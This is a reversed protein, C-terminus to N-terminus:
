GGPASPKSEAQEVMPGAGTLGDPPAPRVHEATSAIRARIVTSDDSGVVIAPTRGSGSGAAPQLSPESLVRAEPRRRDLLWQTTAALAVLVVGAVSSQLAIFTLNSDLALALALSPAVVLSAIHLGLRRARLVVLGVALVMGSCLGVLLARPAFVIPLSGPEGPRSFLYEQAGSSPTTALSDPLRGGQTSGTVWATLRAEIWRPRRKWLYTEWYWENDDIWGSPTGIVVNNRPVRAEWVTTQVIGGELLRPAGWGAAASRSPQEYEIGVLVPSGARDGPLSLRYSGPEALREVETLPDGGAWARIWTAGPPLAVSVQPQRAELRYWASARLQGDPGEVTKLWLRSALLPPLPALPTASASVFLARNGDAPVRRALRVPPGTETLATADDPSIRTWSQAESNFEIGAEAAVEVKVDSAGADLVQLWPIEIRSEPSARLGPEIPLRLRFKLRIMDSVPRSFILRYRIGGDPGDSVRTRESIEIGDWDWRGEASRPVAVDIHELVGQHVRCVSEQHIDIRTRDVQALITTEQRVSRPREEVALPLAMAGADDRLYLAPNPMMQARENPWVWDDPPEEGASSFLSAGQEAGHGLEVTINRAASVAILSGRLEGEGPRVLGVNVLKKSGFQQRGTFHLTFRGSERAKPTLGLVLTRTQGTAPEPLWHSSAVVTDPGASDWELSRPWAAQVEFLSGGTVRYDLRSDV